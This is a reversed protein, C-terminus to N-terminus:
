IRQFAYQSMCSSVLYYMTTYRYIPTIDCCLLINYSTFCTIDCICRMRASLRHLLPYLRERADNDNYVPQCCRPSMM